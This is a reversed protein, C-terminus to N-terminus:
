RPRPEPQRLAGLEADFVQWAGVFRDQPGCIDDRAGHARGLLLLGSAPLDEGVADVLDIDGSVASSM